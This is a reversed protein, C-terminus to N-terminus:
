SPDTYWVQYIASYDMDYYQPLKDWERSKVKLLCVNEKGFNM